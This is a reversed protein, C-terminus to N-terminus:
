KTNLAFRRTVRGSRSTFKLKNLEEGGKHTPPTLKTQRKAMTKNNGKVSISKQMKEKKREENKRQFLFFEYYNTHMDYETKEKGVLNKAAGAAAPKEICIRPPSNTICRLPGSASGSDAMSDCSVRKNTNWAGERAETNLPRLASTACDSNENECDSCGFLCWCEVDKEHHWSKEEETVEYIRLLEKEIGPLHERDLSFYVLKDGESAHSLWSLIVKLTYIDLTDHIKPTENNGTCEDGKSSKKKNKKKKQTSTKNKWEVWLKVYKELYAIAISREAPSLIFSPFPLSYQSPM